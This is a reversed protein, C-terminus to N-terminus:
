IELSGKKTLPAHSLIPTLSCKTCIPAGYLKAKSMVITWTFKLHSFGEEIRIPRFFNVLPLPILRSM